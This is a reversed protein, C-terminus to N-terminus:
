VVSKRDSSNQRYWQYRSELKLLEYRLGSRALPKGDPAVFVVDFNAPDGEAVNSDGFLPKVGIMADKPAVPLTLKREVARGGTEVMRVFIQTEQPRTSSPPKALSVNFTAKGNADAEPLNELPTRENSSTEEDAVGFKYGTFGPRDSAPAVLMDGELALGSAPAGYLFRGDVELEAPVEPNIEKSKSSLTFEIRDAVYDEVMFTTEGVSAAKPDTFARVRWTGTPVASNLPLTLSRGGAGQDPVLARRFEVGDPREVVLTLPTGTAANGKGDRLLM